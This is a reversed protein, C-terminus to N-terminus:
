LQSLLKMKRNLFDRYKKEQVVSVRRRFDQTATETAQHKVPSDDRFEIGTEHM